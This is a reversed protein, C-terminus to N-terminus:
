WCQVRELHEAMWVSKCFSVINIIMKRLISYLPFIEASIAGPRGRIPVCITNVAAVSDVCGVRGFATGSLPVSASAFAQSKGGSAASHSAQSRCVLPAGM